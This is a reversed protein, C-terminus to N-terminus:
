QEVNTNLEELKWQQKWKGPLYEIPLDEVCKYITPDYDACASNEVLSVNIEDLIHQEWEGDPLSVNRRRERIEYSYLPYEGSLNDRYM